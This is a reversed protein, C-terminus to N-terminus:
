VRAPDVYAGRKRRKERKPQRHRLRDSQSGAGDSMRCQVYLTHHIMEITGDYNWRTLLRAGYGQRPLDKPLRCRCGTSLVYM